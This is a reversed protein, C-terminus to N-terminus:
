RQRRCNAAPSYGGFASGKLDVPHQSKCVKLAEDEHHGDQFTVGLV